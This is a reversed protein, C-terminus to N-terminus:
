PLTLAQLCPSTSLTLTLSLPSLAPCLPVRIGLNPPATLLKSFLSQYLSSLGDLWTQFALFTRQSSFPLLSSPHAQKPGIPSIRRGRFSCLLTLLTTLNPELVSPFLFKTYPSLPLFGPVSAQFLHPALPLRHPSPSDLLLSLSSSPAEGRSFDQSFQSQFTPSPHPPGRLCFYHISTRPLFPIHHTCLALLLHTLFLALQLHLGPDTRLISSRLLCHTGM